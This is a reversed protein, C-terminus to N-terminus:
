DISGQKLTRLRAMIIEKRRDPPLDLFSGQLDELGFFPVAAELIDLDPDLQRGVGELVLTGVCLTAFNGELAVRYRRAVALAQLLIPAV